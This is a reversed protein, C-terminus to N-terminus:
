RIKGFRPTLYWDDGHSRRLYFLFPVHTHITVHGKIQLELALWEMPHEPLEQLYINGYQVLEEGTVQVEGGRVM